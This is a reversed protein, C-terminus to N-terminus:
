ICKLEELQLILEESVKKYIYKEKIYPFLRFLVLIYFVRVWFKDYNFLEKELNNRLYKYAIKIKTRDRYDPNLLLTWELRIEQLLKSIDQFPTEIFCDCFDILIIKDAFIMNSLTFDGHCLTAVPIVDHFLCEKEIYKLFPEIISNDLLYNTSKIKIEQLKEKIKKLWFITPIFSRIQNDARFEWSIFTKLKEMLNDLFEISESEFMDLINKGKYFPMTVSHKNRKIIPPIEFYKKIYVEKNFQIQKDIQKQLRKGDSKKIFYGGTEQILKLKFNSHGKLM